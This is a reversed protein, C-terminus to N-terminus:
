DNNWGSWDVPGPLRGFDGRIDARDQDTNSNFATHVTRTGSSVGGTIPSFKLVNSWLQEVCDPGDDHGEPYTELQTILTRLSHHLRIQGAEFYPELGEIRLAKDTTPIIPRTPLLVGERAARAMLETRLFEQFQTAECFWMACRYQIQFAITKAIIVSPKRRQISAEYIDLRAEKRNYGGVVIASPDGIHKHKGLSPDIAGFFILGSDRDVWFTINQFLQNESDIPENQYESNFARNGLRIRLDMLRKLPQVAPWLVVAGKEMEVKHRDYFEQAEAIDKEGLENESANRLLEEYKDWLDMRDPWKIIAQFKKSKWMPSKMKRALVSDFHLLTGVYFLDMSGDPPGLAEVAKNLWDEGKQRQETNRVNEDNEIDDLMILDPRKAGHRTGRLRKGAGGCMVKAGNNTIFTGVQWVPGRGTGKPFDHALRPNDELETKIGELLMAAVEIADSIIVPFSKRETLLCWLTGLQTVYTSKANGRPAAWSGRYGHCNDIAHQFEDFLWEHFVSYPATGYHPFYTQCFFKFSAQSKKRREKTAKDSRDFDGFAAAEDIQQRLSLAQQRIDDLFDDSGYKPGNYAPRLAKKKPAM